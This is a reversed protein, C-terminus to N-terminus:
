DEALLYVSLPAVVPLVMRPAACIEFLTSLMLYVLHNATPLQHIQDTIEASKTNAVIGANKINTRHDWHV